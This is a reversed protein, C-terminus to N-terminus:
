ERLPLTEPSTVPVRPGLLMAANFYTIVIRVGFEAPSTKTKPV